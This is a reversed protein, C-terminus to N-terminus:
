QIKTNQKTHCLKKVKLPNLVFRKKQIEPPLQGCSFSDRLDIKKFERNYKELLKRKDEDSFNEIKETKM